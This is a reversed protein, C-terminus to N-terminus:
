TVTLRFPPLGIAGFADAPPTLVVRWTHVGVPLAATSGEVRCRISGAAADAIEATVLGALSPTEDEVRVSWDTLDVLEDTETDKLPTVIEVDTWRNVTVDIM